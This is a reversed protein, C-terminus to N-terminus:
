LSHTANHLLCRSNHSLGAAHRGFGSRGSIPHRGSLIFFRKSVQALEALLKKVGEITDLLLLLLLLFNSFSCFDHRTHSLLFFTLLQNVLLCLSLSLASHAASILAYFPSPSRM